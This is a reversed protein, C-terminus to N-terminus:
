FPLLVELAIYSGGVGKLHDVITVSIFDSKYQTNDM